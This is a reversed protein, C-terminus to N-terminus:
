QLESNWTIWSDGNWYTKKMSDHELKIWDASKIVKAIRVEDYLGKYPNSSDSLRMGIGLSNSSDSSM